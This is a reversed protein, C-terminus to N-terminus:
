MYFVLIFHNKTLINETSINKLLYDCKIFTRNVSTHINGPNVFCHSDCLCNNSCSSMMCRNVVRSRQVIRHKM